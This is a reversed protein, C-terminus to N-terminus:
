IYANYIFIYEIESSGLVEFSKMVIATKSENIKTTKHRERFVPSLSCMPLFLKTEGHGVELAMKCLQLSRMTCMYDM